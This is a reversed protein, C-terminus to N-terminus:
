QVRHSLREEGREIMQKMGTHALRLMAKRIDQRDRDELAAWHEGEKYVQPGYVFRSDVFKGDPEVKTRGVGRYFLAKQGASSGATLYVSWKYLASGDAVSQRRIQLELKPKAATDDLTANM